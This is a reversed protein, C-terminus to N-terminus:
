CLNLICIDTDHYPSYLSHLLVFLPLLPVRHKGWEALPSALRAALPPRPARYLYTDGGGVLSAKLGLAVM